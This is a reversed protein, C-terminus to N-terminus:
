DTAFHSSSVHHTFYHYASFKVFMVYGRVLLHIFGTHLFMPSVLRWWEYRYVILAANKAGLTNLITPYPGFMPNIKAPALGNSLALCILLMFIQLIALWMSVTGLIKGWIVFKTPSFELPCCLRTIKNSSGRDGRKICVEGACCPCVAFCVVQVPDVREGDRIVLTGWIPDEMRLEGVEGERDMEESRVLEQQQLAMAIEVDNLCGMDGMEIFGGHVDGGGGGGGSVNGNSNEASIDYELQLQRALAEDDNLKSEDFDM